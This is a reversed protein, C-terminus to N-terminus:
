LVKTEKSLEATVISFNILGFIIMVAGTAYACISFSNTSYFSLMGVGVLIIGLFLFSPMKYAWLFPLYHAGVIITLSPFFSNINNRSAMYVLPYSLPITFAILMLLLPLSNSERVRHPNRLIYKRAVEGLPFVFMGGILILLIASRSSVFDGCLGSIIWITGIVLTHPSAGLYVRRLEQHFDM